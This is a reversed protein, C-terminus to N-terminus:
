ITGLILLVILTAGLALMFLGSFLHLQRWKEQRWKEVRATTTFGLGVALTIIVFPQIFILNYLLLFWVAQMRTAMSSLMGIVVVYPGSTCPLLFLSILFGIFFAGLGSTISTTIRKLVPQWSRPVEISFWRGKWFFDKTNWLGLFIALLSVAIYIYHQIGSVQVAAFLGIGMLFYSVFCATTFSFGAGLVARKRKSAVLITGLLLVLVACACPNIADVAAAGIVAPLTIASTFKETHKETPLRVLPSAAKDRVARRVAEEIKRQIFRNSGQFASDGIFVAPTGRDLIDQAGYAKALDMMLNAQEPHHIEYHKIVVPYNPRIRKDLFANIKACYPCGREYFFLLEQSSLTPALWFLLMLFLLAPQRLNKGSTM